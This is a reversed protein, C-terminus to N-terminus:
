GVGSSESEAAEVVPESTDVLRAKDAHCNLCEDLVPEANSVLENSSNEVTSASSGEKAIPEVPNELSASLNAPQCGTLYLTALVLILSQWIKRM